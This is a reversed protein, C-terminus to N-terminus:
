PMVELDVNCSEEKGLKTAAPEQLVRRIRYGAHVEVFGSVSLNQTDQLDPSSLIEHRWAGSLILM